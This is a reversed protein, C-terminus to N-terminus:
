NAVGDEAADESPASTGDGAPIETAHTSPADADGSGSGSAGEHANLEAIFRKM